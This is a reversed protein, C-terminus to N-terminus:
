DKSVKDKANPNAHHGLDLLHDHDGEMVTIEELSVDKDPDMEDATNDLNVTSNAQNVLKSQNARM